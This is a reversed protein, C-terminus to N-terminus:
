NKYQVEQLVREKGRKMLLKQLLLWRTQRTLVKAERGAGNHAGEQLWCRWWIGVITFINAHCILIHGLSQFVELDECPLCKIHLLANLNGLLLLCHPIGLLLLLLLQCAVLLLGPLLLVGLQLLLTLFLFELILLGDLHTGSIFYPLSKISIIMREKQLLALLTLLFQITELLFLQELLM